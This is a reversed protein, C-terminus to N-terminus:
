RRVCSNATM